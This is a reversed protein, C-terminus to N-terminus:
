LTNKTPNNIQQRYQPIEKRFTFHEKCYIHVEVAYTMTKLLKLM